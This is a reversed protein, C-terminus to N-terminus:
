VSLCYRVNGVDMRSLIAFELFDPIATCSKIGDSRYEDVYGREDFVSIHVTGLNITQKLAALLAVSDVM